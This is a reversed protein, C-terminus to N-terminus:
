EALLARREAISAATVGSEIIDAGVDAMLELARDLHEAAGSRDGLLALAGAILDHARAADARAGLEEAIALAREGLEVAQRPDSDRCALARGLMAEYLWNRSGLRDALAEVDGFVAAARSSDRQRLLVHGLGVRATAEGMLYGSACAVALAQTFLDGAGRDDGVVVRILGLGVLADLRVQDHDVVQALSLAESLCAVAEDYEARQRLVHGSYVLVEPLAAAGEATRALALAESLLDHAGAYDDRLRLLNALGVLATAAPLASDTERALALGRRYLLAAHDPQGLRRRVLALRCLAFAEAVRDGDRRACDLAARHLPVAARHRGTTALHRELSGSLSGVHLGLSRERATLAAGLLNDLEADLWRRADQGTTPVDPRADPDVLGGPVAAAPVYPYAVQAARAAAVVYHDLMRRIAAEAEGRRAAGRRRAHERVLAHMAFRDPRVEEVLRCEVLVDLMARTGRRDADVLATAAPLCVDPGPMLGLLDYLRQHDVDLQDVSTDLAAGMGRAGTVLEALRDGAGLRSNLDDLTWAPRSRLRAAAIRIALPVRGCLEVAETVAHPSGAVLAPSEASVSFLRVADVTPLPNLSVTRGRDLGTLRRRSTVIVLNDGAGPLLPQIQDEHAADDLLLLVPRQAAQSRFMAARADMGPPVAEAPVDLSRLMRDLADAPDLPRGSAGHMDLFLQGDPYGGACAHAARVALTTKGIGAMGDISWVPVGDGRGTLLYDLEETRGAFDVPDAPLQRPATSEAKVTPPSAAETLAAQLRARDAEDLALAAVVLRLTSSRPRRLEGAELRRVTRVDVGARQALDEQTLLARERWRRLLAGAGEGTPPPAGRIM